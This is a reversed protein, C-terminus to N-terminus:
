KRLARESLLAILIEVHRLCSWHPDGAVRAEEMAAEMEALQAVCDRDVVRESLLRPLDRSRRYEAMGHRAADLLLRPRRTRSGDGDQTTDPDRYPLPAAAPCM